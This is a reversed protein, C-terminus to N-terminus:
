APLKMDLAVTFGYTVGAHHEFVFRDLGNTLVPATGAPWVINAFSTKGNGGAVDIVVNASLGSDVAPWGSFSISLSSLAADVILHQVHSTTTDLTVFADTETGHTHFTYIRPDGAPGQAGPAGDAGPAGTAGNSGPAGDAGANGKEGKLGQGLHHQWGAWTGGGLYDVHCLDAATADSNIATFSLCTWAATSSVQPLTTSLSQSWLLAGAASYVNFTVSTYAGNGVIEFRYFTDVSLTYATTASRSSDNATKGVVSTGVIEFYVGDTADDTAVANCCGFRLIATSLGAVAAITQICLNKTLALAGPYSRMNYGSNASTTSRIRLVGPYVDPDAYLTPVERNGNNVKYGEVDGSGGDAMHNFLWLDSVRRSAAIGDVAQVTANDDLTLIRM